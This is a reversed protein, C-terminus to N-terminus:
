AWAPAYAEACTLEFCNGNNPMPRLILLYNLSWASNKKNGNGSAATNHTGLSVRM